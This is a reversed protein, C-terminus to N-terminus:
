ISWEAPADCIPLDGKKDIMTINIDIQFPVGQPPRGSYQKMCVGRVDPYQDANLNYAAWYRSFKLRHYLQSSSLNAHWGVYIGPQYDARLVRDHWYNCYRIIQERSTSTDVGELDLWVTSGKALGIETAYQAAAEGYQRGKDDSPAWSRESEVHQVAMVGLGAHHLFEIEQAGLDHMKASIRPLYRVAFRYGSKFFADAQAANIPTNCDIGRTNAPIIQKPM